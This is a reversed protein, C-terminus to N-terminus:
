RKKVYEVVPPNPTDVVRQLEEQAIRLGTEAWSVEKAAKQRLKLYAEEPTLAMDRMQHPQLITRYDLFPLMGEATFGGDRRKKANFAHIVIKGERYIDRQAYYLRVIGTDGAKETKTKM